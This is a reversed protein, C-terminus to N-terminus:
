RSPRKQPLRIQPPRVTLFQWIGRREQQAVKAGAAFSSAYRANPKIPLPAALGDDIMRQNLMMGDTLYLYALLRGYKDRKKRDYEVSVLTGRPAIDELHRTAVKGLSLITKLSVRYESAQRYARQNERSEMTDIGILRVSEKGEPFALRVTDGDVIEVIRVRPNAQAQAPVIRLLIALLALTVPALLSFTGRYPSHKARHTFPSPMTPTIM